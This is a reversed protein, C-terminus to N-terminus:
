APEAAAQAQARRVRINGSLTRCRIEVTAGADDGDSEDLESAVAGSTSSLDLYISLGPVVSVSLDGSASSAKIRGAAVARLDVEGSATSVNVSSACQGVTVDGSASSIRTYGGARGLRVDGSATSIKADSGAETVIVDGSATQLALEGTVSAASLDGSATSARLSDIVGVCSVDASATKVDCRSGPPTKITLDLGHHRWFSIGRPGTVKLRQGEFTVRVEALLQDDVRPSAPTVEVTVNQTPEGAIAVSGAAWGDIDIDIPDSCPFEWNTM